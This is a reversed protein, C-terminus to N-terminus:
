SANAAKKQSHVYVCLLWSRAGTTKIKEEHQITDQVTLRILSERKIGALNSQHPCKIVFDLFYVLVSLLKKSLYKELFPVSIMISM